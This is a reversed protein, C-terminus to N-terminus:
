HVNIELVETEDNSYILNVNLDSKLRIFDINYFQKIKHRREAPVAFPLLRMEETTIMYVKNDPLYDFTKSITLNSQYGFNSPIIDRYYKLYTITKFGKLGYYYVPYQTTYDERLLPIETEKYDLIWDLGKKDKYTFATNAGGTWPSSYLNFFCSLTILSLILTFLLTYKIKQKEINVSILIRYFYIGCIITSFLIGYSLARIPEFIVFYSFIMAIGILLSSIFQIIYYIDNIIIKNKQYYNRILYIVFLFSILFYITIPGYVKLYRDIILWISADSKSIIDIQYDFITITEYQGLLAKIINSLTKLLSMFHIIWFSFVIFLITILNIAIIKRYQTSNKFRSWIELIIFILFTIILLITILPHCYVIFFLPFILCIYFEGKIHTSIIKQYLFLILPITLIAYFFPYFAYYSFSFILPIGFISIFIGGKKSGILIKGFIYLYIIYFLFFLIIIINVLENENLLSINLISLLIHMIPYIDSQLLFGSNSIINTAFFHYYIDGGGRNM